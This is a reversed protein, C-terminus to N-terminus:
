TQRKSALHETGCVTEATEPARLRDSGLIGRAESLAVSSVLCFQTASVFLCEGVRGQRRKSFAEDRLGVFAKRLRQATGSCDM